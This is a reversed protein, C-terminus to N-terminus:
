EVRVSWIRARGEGCFEVEFGISNVPLGLSLTYEKRTGDGTLRGGAEVTVIEEPLPNGGNALHFTGSYVNRRVKVLVDGDIAADLVLRTKGTPIHQPPAVLVGGEAFAFDLCGNKDPIGADIINKYWFHDRCGDFKWSYLDTRGKEKELAAARIDELQGVILTYDYTYVIDHDLIENHSPSIYGTPADKPGGVGPTSFCGSGFSTTSPMWIGLGYDNDDVLASWHETARFAPPMWCPDTKTYLRTVEDGTCPANGVYSVAQWWVGNTYVAPLEQGRAPYPTKDERANNLRSTVEVQMGNLRYWIEFTCDGPVNDLPWQMPICKVYLETEGVSYELMKSRNGFADGCGIPNWGLDRWGPSVTKGEPIFPVPHAYFSMQVQRGWDHSNILNDRGHEALYTVCGGLALNIGLRIHENEIYAVHEDGLFQYDKANEYEM